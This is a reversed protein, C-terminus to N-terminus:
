AAVTRNLSNRRDYERWFDTLDFGNREAWAILVDRKSQGEKPKVYQVERWIHVMRERRGEETRDKVELQHTEQLIKLRAEKQARRLEEKLAARFAAHEKLVQALKKDAAIEKARTKRKEIKLKEILKKKSLIKKRASSKKRVATKKKIIKKVIKKKVTLKRTAKKIKKVSKKKISRRIGRNVKKVPTRKKRKVKRKRQPVKTKAM